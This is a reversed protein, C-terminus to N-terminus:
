QKEKPMKPIPLQHLKQALLKTDPLKSQYTAVGIKRAAQSIAIRVTEDNKSKCLILGVSPKEHALKLKEDLAGLYFQMKGIYEPKFGGIKLEVPVLCRLERHYFLLDIEFTDKGIRLPYESGIFSFNKGFELFFDRLNVLIAKRLKEESHIQKLGLFDLMYHDKFPALSDTGKAPLAKSTKKSGLYRTFLNTDLQRELERFSWREKICLKLYFEKEQDNVAQELILLNNSWSIEASLTQLNLLNRYSLFYQRMNWLNRESFGKTDPFAVRLDQALNEIIAEGWNSKEQKEVIRKGIEWYLSILEQNVTQFAKHRRKHIEEKIAKFFRSYGILSKRKM